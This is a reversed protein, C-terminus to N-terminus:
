RGSHERRMTNGNNGSEHDADQYREEKESIEEALRTSLTSDALYEWMYIAARFSERRTEDRIKPSSENKDNIQLAHKERWESGGSAGLVNALCGVLVDLDHQFLLLM